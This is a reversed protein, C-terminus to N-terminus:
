NIREQYFGAHISKVKSTIPCSAWLANCGGNSDFFDKTLYYPMRELYSSPNTSIGHKACLSIINKIKESLKIGEKKSLLFDAERAKNKIFLANFPQFKITTAGHEAALKVIYDLYIYNYRSVMTALTTEINCRRLNECASIAREFSGRGRLYDHVDRPGEISVNVVDVGAAALKFSNEEDILLGNSTICASM